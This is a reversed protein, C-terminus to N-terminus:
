TRITYLPLWAEWKANVHTAVSDDKEYKEDVNM